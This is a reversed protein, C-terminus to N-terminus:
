WKYYKFFHHHNLSQLSIEFTKFVIFCWQGTDIYINELIKSWVWVPLQETNQKQLVNQWQLMTEHITFVAKLFYSLCIM